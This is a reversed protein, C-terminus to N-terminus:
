LAEVAIVGAGTAGGQALNACDLFFQTITSVSTGKAVHLVILYQDNDFTGSPNNFRPVNHLVLVRDYLASRTVQAFAPDAELERMRLSDVRTSDPYANQLYRGDLILERLVTEGSGSAQVPAQAEVGHSSLYPATSSVSIANVPFSASLNTNSLEDAVSAYVYLPELDYKDTPTFTANGFTTDVYGVTFEIHADQSLTQSSVDTSTFGTPNATLGTATTTGPIYLSLYASAGSFAAVENASYVDTYTKLVVTASISPIAPQTPYKVVIGTTSVLSSIFSNAPVGTGVVKQGPLMGTNTVTITVQSTTAAVGIATATAGAAYKYVRAQVFQSTFPQSNIQEKWGLLVHVPDRWVLSTDSGVVGSYADMTRYLQHNLFRLAPSGKIDLRLRYTQNVAVFASANVKVVQNVPTKAAVTIVRSIYKPNIMKSKVTEKYGGHAGIKDSSFYSGQILYFPKVSAATVATLASNTASTPTFFGIQGATLATSATAATAPTTSAPLFSKRFANPFYM